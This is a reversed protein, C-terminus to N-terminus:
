VEVAIRQLPIGTRLVEPAKPFPGGLPRGSLANLKVVNPSQEIVVRVQNEPPVSAARKAQGLIRGASMVFDVHGVRRIRPVQGNGHFATVDILRAEAESHLGIAIRPGLVIVTKRKPSKGPDAKEVDARDRVRSIDVGSRSDACARKLKQGLTAANRNPPEIRRIRDPGDNPAFDLNRRESFRPGAGEIQVVPIVFGELKGKTGHPELGSKKQGSGLM